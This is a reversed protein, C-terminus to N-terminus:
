GLYSWQASIETLHLSPFYLRIPTAAAEFQETNWQLLGTGWALGVGLLLALLGGPIQLRTGPLFFIVEGFYTLLIIALPM